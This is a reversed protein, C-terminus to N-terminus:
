LLVNDVEEILVSNLVDKLISAQLPTLIIVSPDDDTNNQVLAMSAGNEEWRIELDADQGADDLITVISDRGDREVSIM